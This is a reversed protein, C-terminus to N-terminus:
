QTYHLFLIRALWDGDRLSSIYEDSPLAVMRDTWRPSWDKAM